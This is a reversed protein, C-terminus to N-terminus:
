KTEPAPVAVGTDDVYYTQGKFEVASQTVMWGDADFFYQTDGVKILGTAQAGNSLMYCMGDATELWGTRMAGTQSFYRNKGNIEQWGTAASGDSQLYYDVGNDCFWGTRAIGNEYYYWKENEYQWGNQLTRSSVPSTKPVAAVAGVGFSVDAVMVRRIHYIIEGNACYPNEMDCYLQMTYAGEALVGTDVAEDVIRLDINTGETPIEKYLVTEGNQDVISVAVTCVSLSQSSLVGAIRSDEGLEVQEPLIENHLDVQTGHFWVPDVQGAPIYSYGSEEKIQYFLVGELNRCLASAYLREGAPVSRIEEATMFDPASLLVIETEAAVFLDCAVTECGAVAIGSDFHILGEFGAWGNYHEAFERITCVMAQSPDSQFPTVFGETFYVLGDLIAHVVTVHGYLRGAATTTWQFGIIMNYVDKSGYNSVANLAEELSYDTASYCVPTYGEAIQDSVRLVDYMDNGNHTVASTTIGMLYLEWGAMMGCYGHLSSTGTASLTRRYVDSIQDRIRQHEEESAALASVPLAALMLLICMILATIRKLM